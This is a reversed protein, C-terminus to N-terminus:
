VKLLFLQLCNPRGRVCSLCWLYNDQPFVSSFGDSAVSSANNAVESRLEPCSRGEGSSQLNTSEEPLVNECVDQTLVTDVHVTDDVRHDSAPLPHVVEDRKVACNM